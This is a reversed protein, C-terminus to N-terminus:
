KEKTKDKAKMKQEHQYDMVRVLLNAYQDLFIEEMKEVTMGAPLKRPEWKKKTIKAM